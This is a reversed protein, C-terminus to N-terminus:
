ANTYTFAEQVSREWGNSDEDPAQKGLRRTIKTALKSDSAEIEGSNIHDKMASLLLATTLISQQGDIISCIGTDQDILCIITGFFHKRNAGSHRANNLVDEFLQNCHEKKWDYNRQYVPIELSDYKFFHDIISESNQM